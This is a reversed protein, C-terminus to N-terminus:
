FMKISDKDGNFLLIESQMYRVSECIDIFAFSSEEFYPDFCNADVNSIYQNFGKANVIMEITNKCDINLEDLKDKLSYVDDVFRNVKVDNYSLRSM